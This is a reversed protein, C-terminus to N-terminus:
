VRMTFNPRFDKRFLINSARMKLHADVVQFAELNKSTELNGSVQFKSTAHAHSSSGFTREGNLVKMSNNM